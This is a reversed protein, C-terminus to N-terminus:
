SPPAHGVGPTPQSTARGAIAATPMTRPHASGFVLTCVADAHAAIVDDDTPDMGTLRRCEPGLVFITPAAGTLLYYLHAPAIDAVVGAAVLRAFRQTVEDYLPRIHRDVLYDMRDSDARCESTIIRHLQPTHASFEVFARVTHHVVVADDAGAHAALRQELATRLRTFLGDVVAVWLDAKTRFHYNLLPQTVGAAAAIRRTSAGDFSRDAFEDVAADLIRARTVDASRRLTRHTARPSAVV